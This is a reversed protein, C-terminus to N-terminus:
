GAPEDPVATDLRHAARQGRRAIPVLATAGGLGFREPMGVYVTEHRDVVYTEHFIGVDGSDRVRRNFEKWAPLHAQDRSRAYADLHGTSRWYQLVMVTRGSLFTQHSLLGLEPTRELEALMRPMAAFVPGWRRVARLRNIRVGILFAVTGTPADDTTRGPMPRTSM